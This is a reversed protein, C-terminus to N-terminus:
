SYLEVTAGLGGEYAQGMAEFQWESGSRYFRCLLLSDFGNYAETLQYQCIM